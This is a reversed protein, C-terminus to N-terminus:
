IYYYMSSKIVYDEKFIAICHQILILGQMKISRAHKKPNNGYNEIAKVYYLGATDKFRIYYLIYFIFRIVTFRCLVNKVRSHLTQM